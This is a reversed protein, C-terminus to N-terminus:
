MSGIFVWIYDQALIFGINLIHGLSILLEGGLVKGRRGSKVKPTLYQCEVIRLYYVVGVMSGIILMMVALWHEVGVLCLLINYKIFFGGLPPIGALSLLLLVMCLGGRENVDELKVM